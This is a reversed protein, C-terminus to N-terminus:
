TRILLKKFIRYYGVASIVMLFFTVVFMGIILPYDNIGFVYLTFTAVSAIYFSFTSVKGFWLAAPPNIENKVLYFAGAIIIIEKLALLCVIPIIIPFIVSLSIGVSFLTLKDALPDLYQGLQSIQNFRRAIYGDLIDTIGSFILVVLAVVYYDYFFLILFPIILLIRSVTLINPVTLNNISFVSSFAKDNNELETM